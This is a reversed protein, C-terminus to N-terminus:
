ITSIICSIGLDSTSDNQIVFMPKRAYDKAAIIWPAQM